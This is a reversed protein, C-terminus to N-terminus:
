KVCFADVQTHEDEHMLTKVVAHLMNLFKIHIGSRLFKFDYLTEKSEFAYKMFNGSVIKDDDKKKKKKSFM